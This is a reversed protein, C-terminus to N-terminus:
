RPVRWPSEGTNDFDYVHLAKIQDAATHADADTQAFVVSHYVRWAWGLCHAWAALCPMGPLQKNLISWRSLATVTAASSPASSSAGNAQVWGNQSLQAYASTM